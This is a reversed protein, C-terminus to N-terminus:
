KIQVSPAAQYLAVDDAPLVINNQTTYNYGLFIDDKRTTLPKKIQNQYHIVPFTHRKNNFPERWNYQTKNQTM